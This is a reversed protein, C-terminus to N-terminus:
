KSLHAYAEQDFVNRVTYRFRDTSMEDDGGVARLRRRTLFGGEGDVEGLAQWVRDWNEYFYEILLPIVKDRMVEDIDAKRACAMFYAHGVQHDRDYLYEIRENLASVVTRLDIGDVDTSLLEPQPMLEIFRFRRRLATDLLAISRDATNMTGVIHLNSPVGFEDGSYPLTVTLANAASLRKDPEILTILEGFVKSINARNIEDIILVYSEPPGPRADSNGGAIVQELAPWDIQNPDLQYISQMMFKRGYILERPLGNPDSWLWRVHRRHHYEGLGGQEFYYSGTVEALARFRSNGDSIVVLSGRQMNGRLSYVQAINPDNGFAEAHDRRWRQRIAFFDDYEPPSWDIEGGYGLAVFGGERAQQFVREGEEQGSRGLSMKFVKRNRDFVPASSMRGRNAQAAAAIRRFIGPHPKLSFGGASASGDDDEQDTEPRLGEVFDEYAYSQHFTVFGIRRSQVLERYRTMLAPRQARDFLPDDASRDDCLRVAEAAAQYTKGTGPPGYLILNTPLRPFEEQNMERELNIGEMTARPTWECTTLIFAHVDWLDRPEWGWDRRMKDLISAAMGLIAGYEAATM